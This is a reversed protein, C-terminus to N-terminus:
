EISETTRFIQGSQGRSAPGLLYIYLKELSEANIRQRPNEAPFAMNRLPSDVPGPILMNVRVKGASELEDALIGALAEAAIKSIGYIGWYAKSKRASSDSTFVISGDASEQLLDLLARTLAFPASLNVQLVASWDRVNIHALPGLPAFAAANHLLGHVVGFERGIVEALRGYDRESAGIFDIPYIAPQPANRTLIEDYLKELAPLTKDCLIVTAGHRACAISAVRGLRGAAGTVVIIRGKLEDRPFDPIESLRFRNGTLESPAM